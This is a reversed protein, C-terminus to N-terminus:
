FPVARLGPSDSAPPSSFQESSESLERNPDDCADCGDNPSAKGFKPRSAASSAEATKSDGAYHTVVNADTVPTVATVVNDLIILRRNATRVWDVLIGEARLSPALRRLRNSLAQPDKPWAKDRKVHDDVLAGLKQLLESATGEFRGEAVLTLMAQAVPSAELAVSHGAASNTMYVGLFTGPEFGLAPEAAVAWVAFDALRPLADLKLDPQRRLATSVADCLAGLIAPQVTEFDRWFDKEARRRTTDIPPLHLTLARDVLDPRTVMEEIGNVLMPRQAFFLTEDADTYLERTSLGGGTALRCLADSLWAPLYSLNDFTLMWGNRAAIMVDRVDSPESRLPSTNPDVLRRAVQSLTSKASGHGGYVTLVPYPGKPRLGGILWSIFLLWEDDGPLNVYPRLLDLTGGAVPRPLALMGRTREFKIPPETVIRWGGATIEVVEWNENALDFYVISEADGGVRLLVPHRSGDFQARAELLRDRRDSSPRQPAQRVGRLFPSRAM